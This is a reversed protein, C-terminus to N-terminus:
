KDCKGPHQAGYLPATGTIGGASQGGDGQYVPLIVIVNKLRTYDQGSKLSSSDIMAHYFRVRRPLARIAKESHNQDPEMDYVTAIDALSDADSEELYVDLRTSHMDTDTGYYVKQPVVTLRGFSRGFITKLIEKVFPEGFEPHTVLSGFLFDDVLNLDVLKKKAM